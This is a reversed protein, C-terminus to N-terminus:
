MYKAQIYIKWVYHSYVQSIVLPLSNISLPYFVNNSETHYRCLCPRQCQHQTHAQFTSKFRHSNEKLFVRRDKM